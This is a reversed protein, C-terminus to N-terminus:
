NAERLIRLGTEALYETCILEPEEVITVRAIGDWYLTAVQEM